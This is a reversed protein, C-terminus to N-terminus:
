WELSSMELIFLFQSSGYISIFIIIIYKKQLCYLHFMLRRNCAAFFKDHHFLCYFGDAHKSAPIIRKTSLNLDYADKWETINSELESM